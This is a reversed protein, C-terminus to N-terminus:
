LPVAFRFGPPARVSMGAEFCKHCDMLHAGEAFAAVCMYTLMDMQQILDHVHTQWLNNRTCPNGDM